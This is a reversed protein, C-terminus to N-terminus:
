DLFIVTENEANFENSCGEEDSFDNEENVVFYRCLFVYCDM